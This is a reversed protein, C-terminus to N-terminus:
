FARVPRVNSLGSCCYKRIKLANYRLVVVVPLSRKNDSRVFVQMRVGKCCMLYTNCLLGAHLSKDSNECQYNTGCNYSLGCLRYYSGPRADTRRMVVGWRDV